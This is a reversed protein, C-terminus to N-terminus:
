TKTVPQGFQTHIRRTLGQWRSLMQTSLSREIYYEAHAYPKAGFRSKFHMLSKVGGSEGMYYYHCGSNCADEIIRRQLLDNARTRGARKKDIASRWYIATKGHTLVISAAVPQGDLRAIWVRCKDGLKEAVLEFKNRSDRRYGRWRGIFMPIHRERARLELWKTYLDYFVPILRGTTDSEITLGSREARRIKTRTASSFRDSWVADFGGMLDLIHNVKNVSTIGPPIVNAWKNATLPNPRLSTRIKQRNSLDSLVPGIEEAGVPSDSVMDGTGWGHPLSSEYSMLGLAHNRRVMPLVIRRNGSLEYLRSADQYDGTGCIADIWEPTQSILSDESSELLEDWVDRPAPSTVGTIIRPM